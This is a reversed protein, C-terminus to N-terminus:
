LQDTIRKLDTIETHTYHLLMREDAHGILRMKDEKHAEVGKLLTAFTHRCEHPNLPRVGLDELIRRQMERYRDATIDGFLPDDPKRTNGYFERVFPLIKPSLTVTRNTGAKTKGGGVIYGEELNCDQQRIKLLENIRFGTYCLILVMEATEKGEVGDSVAKFLKAIEDATFARKSHAGEDRAIYIHRAYNMNSVGTEQAYNSLCTCLAKMNEKTRYGNPCEDVCKQFQETTLKVFPQGYLKGFYKYAAKYCNITSESVREMHRAIWKDYLEKFTVKSETKALDGYHAIYDLAAKKTEFGGKYHSDYKDGNLHRLRVAWKNGRKYVTGQGNGRQKAKQKREPLTQKVGCMNCYVSGDPIEVKCKRCIM